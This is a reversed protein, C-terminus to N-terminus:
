FKSGIVITGDGEEVKSNKRNDHLEPFTCIVAVMELNRFFFVRTSLPSPLTHFAPKNKLGQLELSFM